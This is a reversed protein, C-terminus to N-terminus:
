THEWPARRRMLDVIAPVVQPPRNIEALFATFGAVTMRPVHETARAAQQDNEVTQPAMSM